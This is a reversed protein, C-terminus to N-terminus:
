MDEQKFTTGYTIDGTEFGRMFWHLRDDLTAHTLPDPAFGNGPEELAPLAQGLDDVATLAAEASDRTVEAPLMGAHHAWVGAFFDAQLEYSQALSAAKEPSADKRRSEVEATYGLLNQVHHGVEHAVVYAVALDGPADDRGRLDALYKKDLYVKSEAPCYFPGSAPESFDCVNGVADDFLELSPASYARGGGSFQGTWVENMDDLLANVLQELGLSSTDIVPSQEESETISDDVAPAAASTDSAPQQSESKPCASLALALLTLAALLPIRGGAPSHPQKRCTEFMM